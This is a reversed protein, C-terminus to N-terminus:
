KIPDNNFKEQSFKCSDSMLKAGGVAPALGFNVGRCGIFYFTKAFVFVKLSPRKCYQTPPSLNNTSFRSFSFGIGFSILPM